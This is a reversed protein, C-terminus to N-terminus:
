GPDAGPLWMTFTSGTNEQSAVDLGGGHLTIIEKALSLGLGTGAARMQQAREGRYFREYIHPLEEESIGIGTDAVMLWVWQRGNKVGSGTTVVVEGGAPTYLIGNSVLAYIAQEIREGDALAILSQGAFRYNLRVNQAEALHVIETTISKKILANIDIRTRELELQGADIRSLNLVAEVLRIQQNAVQELASLYREIETPRRRLLDIYLKIATVPTRLEHSVSSVFSAQMRALAKLHSVDHIAIVAAPSSLARNAEGSLTQSIGASQSETLRAANLELDLGKLELVTTPQIDTQRVIQRVAERLRDADETTLSQTLWTQAVPNTQLITGDLATVVIGDTTSRLIADLRTYQSQLQATRESVMSELGQSYERLATEAHLQKARAQELAALMVNISEELRTLEDAGTVPVRRSPDSLAGIEGVTASLGSVRSLIARNLFVMATVTFVIGVIILSLIFYLLSMQGQRYIDRDTTTSIIFAPKGYLDAVLAYGAITHADLPQVFLPQDSTLAASVAPPIQPDDLRYIAIELQTIEALKDLMAQDLYRGMMMTGCAPGEGSTFLIPQMAILMMGEPLLVIGTLSNESEPYPMLLVNDLHAQLAPPIPVEQETELDVMKGLIIHGSLDTFVMLNLELNIFSPDLLNSEVYEPLTGQVFACTDDWIAWDSLNVDINYLQNDLANVIRQTDQQVHAAELRIYNGLVISRAIIAIVIAACSMILIVILLIRKWLTMPYDGQTEPQVPKDKQAPFRCVTAFETWRKTYMKEGPMMIYSLRCSRCFQSV